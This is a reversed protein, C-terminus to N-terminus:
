NQSPADLPKLDNREQRIAAADLDLQENLADRQEPLLEGASKEVEAAERDADVARQLEERSASLEDMRANLEQAPPMEPRDGEGPTRSLVPYEANANVKREEKRQQIAPNPPQDGSLDEYKIFGPPAFRALELQTCGSTALTIIAALILQKVSPM